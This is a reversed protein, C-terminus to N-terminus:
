KNVVEFSFPGTMPLFLDGTFLDEKHDPVAFLEFEHRPWYHLSNRDLTKSTIKV